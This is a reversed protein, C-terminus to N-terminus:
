SEVRDHIPVAGYFPFGVIARVAATFRSDSTHGFCGGFMTWKGECELPVLRATGTRGNAELRIVPLGNAPFIPPIGV